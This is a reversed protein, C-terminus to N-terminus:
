DKLDDWLTKTGNGQQTKGKCWEYGTKTVYFNGQHKGKNDTVVIKIGNTKIENGDQTVKRM